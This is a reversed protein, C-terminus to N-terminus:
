TREGVSDTKEHSKGEEYIEFEQQPSPISM